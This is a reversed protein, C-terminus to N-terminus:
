VRTRVANRSFRSLLSQITAKIEAMAETMLAKAAHAGKIPWHSSRLPFEREIQNSLCRVSFRQTEDFFRLALSRSDEDLKALFKTFQKDTASRRIVQVGALFDATNNRTEQIKKDTLRDAPSVIKRRMYKDIM